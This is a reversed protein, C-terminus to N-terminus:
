DNIIEPLAEGRRWWYDQGYESKRSKRMKRFKKEAKPDGLIKLQDFFANSILQTQWVDPTYRNAFDVSEGWIGTDDGAMAEQINGATLKALDEVLGVKPGARGKIIGGGFKNQDSFMTDALLAGGGGQVISDIIFQANDMERPERGAAIDKAQLVVSGM